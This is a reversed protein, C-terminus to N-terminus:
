PLRKTPPSPSSPTPPTPHLQPPGSPPNQHQHSNRNQLHPNPLPRPPLLPLRLPHAMPADSDKPGSAPLVGRGGAGRRGELRPPSLNPVGSSSTSTPATPPASTSFSEQCAYWKINVSKGALPGSDFWGDVADHTASEALRINFIQSAYEGLHGISVPPRNDRPHPDRNRNRERILGPLSMTFYLQELIAASTINLLRSQVIVLCFIM